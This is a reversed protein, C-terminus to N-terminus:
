ELIVMTCYSWLLHDGSAVSDKVYVESLDEAPILISDGPNLKNVQGTKDGFYVTGTNAGTGNVAGPDSQLLVSDCPVPTASLASPTQTLAKSGGSRFFM